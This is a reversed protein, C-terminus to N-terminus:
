EIWVEYFRTEMIGAARQVALTLYGGRTIAFGRGYYVFSSDKRTTITGYNPNPCATGRNTSSVVADSIIVQPADAGSASSSNKHYIRFYLRKGVFSNPLELSSTTSNVGNIGSGSGSASNSFKIYTAEQSVKNYSSAQVWGISNQFTGILESITGNQYLWTIEPTPITQVKLKVVSGESPLMPVGTSTQHGITIKIKRCRASLKLSYRNGSAVMALYSLIRNDSDYQVIYGDYNIGNIDAVPGLYEYESDQIDIYNSTSIYYDTERLGGFYLDTIGQVWTLKAGDIITAGDSVGMLARRRRLISNM